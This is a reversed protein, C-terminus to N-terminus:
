CPKASSDTIIAYDMSIVIVHLWLQPQVLTEEQLPDHLDADQVVETVVVVDVVEQQPGAPGM